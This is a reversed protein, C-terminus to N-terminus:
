SSIHRAWCTSRGSNLFSEYPVASGIARVWVQLQFIGSDTPSPTWTFTNAPSYDQVSTWTNTAPDLRWFQYELPGTGGRVHATWTVPVNPYLPSVHDATVSLLTPLQSVISFNGSSLSAEFDASSGLTRVWVRVAYTGPLTPTWVVSKTTSYDRLLTWANTEATYVWFKYQFTGAGGM